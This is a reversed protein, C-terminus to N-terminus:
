QQQQHAAFLSQQPGPTPGTSDEAGTANTHTSRKHRTANTHPACSTPRWLVHSSRESKSFQKSATVHEYCSPLYAGCRANKIVRWGTQRPWERLADVLFRAAKEPSHHIATSAKQHTRSARHFIIYAQTLKKAAQTSQEIKKHQIRSNIHKKEMAIQAM